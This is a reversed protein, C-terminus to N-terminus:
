KSKAWGISEGHDSVGYDVSFDDLLDKSNTILVMTTLPFGAKKIESWDVEAVKDCGSVIDGVKVFLKFPEGNMSVTDIGMHLLVELGDARKFGVAHPQLVTVEGSVPAVVLKDEPEVAFGEGMMKQAFVPDSVTSLNVVKGNVPVYLKQDDVLVKKKKGFGLM